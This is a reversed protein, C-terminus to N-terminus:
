LKAQLTDCFWITSCKGAKQQTYFCIWMRVSNLRLSSNPLYNAWCLSNFTTDDVTGFIAHLFEAPHQFHTAKDSRSSTFFGRSGKQGMLSSRWATWRDKESHGGRRYSSDRRATLPGGWAAILMQSETWWCPRLTERWSTLYVCPLASSLRCLINLCIHSNDWLDSPNVSRANSFGM